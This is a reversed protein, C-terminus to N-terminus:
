TLVLQGNVVTVPRSHLPRPAPGRAVTGDLHFRSGHCPCNITGGTVETVICGTHTCVGSFGRFDNPAPQTVVVELRDFVKGGNLPVESAPGLVTGASGAGAPGLPKGPAPNDLAGGNSAAAGNGPAGGGTPGTSGSSGDGCGAAAAVTGVTAAGAGALVARRALPRGGEGEDGRVVTREVVDRREGDHRAGRDAM